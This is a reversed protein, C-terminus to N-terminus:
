KIYLISFTSSTSGISGESEIESGSALPLVFITSSTFQYKMYLKLMTPSIFVNFISWSLDLLIIHTIEKLTKQARVIYDV